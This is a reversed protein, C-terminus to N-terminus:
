KENLIRLAGKKFIYDIDIGLNLEPPYYMMIYPNSYVKKSRKYFVSTRDKRYYRFGVRAANKILKNSVGESSHIVMMLLNSGLLIDSPIDDKYSLFVDVIEVMTSNLAMIFQPSLLENIRFLGDNATLSSIKKENLVPILHMPQFGIPM